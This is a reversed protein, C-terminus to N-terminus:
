AAWVLLFFTWALAAEDMGLEARIIVVTNVLVMAGASSVAFNLGLLGRLRPTQLYIRLGRTTRDYTGRSQSSQPTLLLVTAVLIASIFFGAATGLFLNNYAMIGLLMAAITPSIINELDYALRSLSLARTYKQEDPLVDLITAQFTPTFVASASQLLFILIYIQWIETVFPLCLAVCVRIIDLIVLLARRNVQDAFAGAVPAIGVYAVMKITFATGLVLAADGGALDYALLGLAVTSLGTGFLAIVQAMFLHRYTKDSLIELMIKAWEVVCAM